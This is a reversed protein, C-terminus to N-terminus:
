TSAAPRSARTPRTSSPVPVTTTAPRTASTRADAHGPALREHRQDPRLRHETGADRHGHDDHERVRDAPGAGLQGPQRGDDGGDRGRRRDRRRGRGDITAGPTTTGTVVVSSGTVSAATPRHPSRCRSGLRADRTQRLSRQRDRADRADRGASIDLALRAYQAQAWTLPSASGAPEGPEFGISATTPDTGFPSAAM